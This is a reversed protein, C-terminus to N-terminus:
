AIERAIGEELGMVDATSLGEDNGRNHQETPSHENKAM